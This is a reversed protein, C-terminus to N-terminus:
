AGGEPQTDALKMNVDKEPMKAALFIGLRKGIWEIVPVAMSNGIARYRAGDSAPKGRYTLADREGKLIDIMDDNAAWQKVLDGYPDEVSPLPEGKPLDDLNKPLTVTIGPKKLARMKDAIADFDEEDYPPSSWRRLANEAIMGERETILAQLEIERNDM